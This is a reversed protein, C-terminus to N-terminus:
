LVTRPVNFGCALPVPQRILKRRNQGATQDYGKVLSIPATARYNTISYVHLVM